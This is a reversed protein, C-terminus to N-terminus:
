LINMFGANLCCIYRLLILFIEGNKKRLFFDKRLTQSYGVYVTRKNATQTPRSFSIQSKLKPKLLFSENNRSESLLHFCHLDGHGADDHHEHEDEHHNSVRLNTTCEDLEAREDLTQLAHQGTIGDLFVSAPPM